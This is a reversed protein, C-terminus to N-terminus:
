KPRSAMYIDYKGVEGPNRRTYISCGDPSIWMPADDQPTDLEKLPVPTSFGVSTSTRSAYYIDFGAGGRSSGIFAQLEDPTVIASDNGASNLSPVSVPVGFGGSGLVARYVDLGASGPRDSSLYVVSGDASVWTISDNSSPANIPAAMVTPASFAVATSARTATWAELAGGGGGRFFYITKGDATLVPSRGQGSVRLAPEIALTGWPSQVDNRRVSYIYIDGGADQGRNSSIYATLLDPLPWFGDDELLQNVVGPVLVPAGFPKALDCAKPPAADAEPAADSADSTSPVDAAADTGPPPSSGSDGVCAAIALPAFGLLASALLYTARM